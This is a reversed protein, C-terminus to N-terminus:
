NNKLSRDTTESIDFILFMLLRRPSLCVVFTDGCYHVLINLQEPLFTSYINLIHGNVYMLAGIGKEVM